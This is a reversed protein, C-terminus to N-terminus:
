RVLALICIQGVRSCSVLMCAFFVKDGLSGLALTLCIGESGGALSLPVCGPHSRVLM